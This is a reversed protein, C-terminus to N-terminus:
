DSLWYVSYKSGDWYIAHASSESKIVEIADGRLTVKRHDEWNADLVTGKPILTWMDVWSYDDAKEYLAVGAGAIAPRSEGQVLIVIGRQKTRINTVWVAVDFRGDGNFDGSLFFPNM